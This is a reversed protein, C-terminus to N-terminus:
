NGGEGGTVITPICYKDLLEFNHTFDDTNERNLEFYGYRAYRGSTPNKWRNQNYRTYILYKTRSGESFSESIKGDINSVQTGVYRNNAYTFVRLGRLLASKSGDACSETITLTQKVVKPPTVYMDITPSKGVCDSNRLKVTREGVKKGDITATLKLERNLPVRLLKAFGDGYIRGQYLYGRSGIFNARLEYTIGTSPKNTNNDILNLTLNNCVASYHWDLNWYSLHEAEIVVDVLGDSTNIDQVTGNQEFKWKATEDDYSWVPVTDGIAIKSDTSPNKFNKDLQMKIKIPNTFKKVKKGSKDKIQISVFGATEFTINKTGNGEIGSTDAIVAFGGPFAETSNVENPSYSTVQMKLKGTVPKGKSTTMKTGSPIIVSTTEKEKSTDITSTLKIEKTVIGDGDTTINEEKTKVGTPENGIKVMKITFEQNEEGTSLVQIGTDIYGEKVAVVNINVDKKDSTIVITGLADTTKDHSLKASTSSNTTIKVGELPTGTNADELHGSITYTAVKLPPVAKIIKKEKSSSSSSGCGIFIISMVSIILIIVRMKSKM